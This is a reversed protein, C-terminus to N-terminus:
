EPATTELGSIASNSFIPRIQNSDLFAFAGWGQRNEFEQPGATEIFEQDQKWVIFPSDAVWIV